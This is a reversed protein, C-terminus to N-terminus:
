SDYPPCDWFPSGLVGTDGTAPDISALEPHGLGNVTPALAVLQACVTPDVPAIGENVVEFVTNLADILSPPPWGGCASRGASLPCSIPGCYTHVDRTFREDYPDWYYDYTAGARDTVSVQTCMGAGWYDDDPYRVVTPAVMAVAKGSSSVSVVAPDAYTFGGAYTRISCTVTVSVPNDRLLDNVAPAVLSVDAAAIPGSRVVTTWEEGLNDQQVSSGYDCVDGALVPEYAGAVGTAAAMTLAAAGLVLRRIV